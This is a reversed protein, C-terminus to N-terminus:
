DLFLNLCLFIEKLLIYASLIETNGDWLISRRIGGSTLWGGKTQFNWELSFLAARFFKISDWSVLKFPIILSDGRCLAVFLAAVQLLVDPANIFNPAHHHYPCSGEKMKGAQNFNTREMKYIILSLVKRPAPTDELLARFITGPFRRSRCSPGTPGRHYDRM